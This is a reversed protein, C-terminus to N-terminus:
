FIYRTDYLEPIPKTVMNFRHEINTDHLNQCIKFTIGLVRSTKDKPNEFHICCRMSPCTSESFKTQYILDGICNGLSWDPNQLQVTQSNSYNLVDGFNTRIEGSKLKYFKEFVIQLHNRAHIVKKYQKAEANTEKLLRWKYLEIRFRTIESIAIVHSYGCTDKIENPVDCDLIEEQSFSRQQITQPISTSCFRNFDWRSLTGPGFNFNYNCRLGLLNEPSKCHYQFMRGMRANFLYKTTSLM